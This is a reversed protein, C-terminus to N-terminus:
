GPKRHIMKLVVCELDRRDLYKYNEDIPVNLHHSVSLEEVLELGAARFMELWEARQVRNVYYFESEFHRRWVRDSYRLYNKPSASSDCYYLHDKLDIEHISYGGPKLLRYLDQIYEALTEERVHELVAFSFVADFTTDPFRDLTGGPGVVYEFGLLGYLEDFSDVTLIADLLRHAHELQRPTANIEEDMVEAFEACYRKFLGLWRGDWIDFLTADVEYFLRLITSEWHAWGTGMELVRDGNQVITYRGVTELLFRARDVYFAPLWKKM